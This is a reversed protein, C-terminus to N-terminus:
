SKAADCNKRGAGRNTSRRGDCKTRRSDLLLPIGLVVRQVVLITVVPRKLAYRRGRSRLEGQCRARRARLSYNSRHRRSRRVYRESRNRHGLRCGRAGRSCRGDHPRRRRQLRSDARRTRTFDGRLRLLLLLRLPLLTVVFNM